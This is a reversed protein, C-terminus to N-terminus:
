GSKEDYDRDAYGDEMRIYRDVSVSLNYITESIGPYNVFQPEIKNASIYATMKDWERM